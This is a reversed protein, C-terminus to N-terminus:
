ELTNAKRLSSTVQVREQANSDRFNWALQEAKVKSEVDHTAPTGSIQSSVSQNFFVLCMLILVPIATWIVEVITNNSIFTDRVVSQKSRFFSVLLSGQVLIFVIATIWLVAHFLQDIAPTFM